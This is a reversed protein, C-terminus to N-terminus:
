YKWELMKGSQLKTVSAWRIGKNGIFGKRIDKDIIIKWLVKYSVRM